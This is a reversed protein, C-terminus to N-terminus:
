SEGLYGFRRGSMWDDPVQTTPMPMEGLHEKDVKFYLSTDHCNIWHIVGNWFVGNEYQMSIHRTFPDGSVRWSRTESSYLEIQYSLFGNENGESSDSSRLCVVKYHPSKEPDYVINIGYVRGNPRPLEVFQKTTPNYIYHKFLITVWSM